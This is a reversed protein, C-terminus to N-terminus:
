CVGGSTHMKHICTLHSGAYSLPRLCAPLAPTPGYECWMIDEGGGGGGYQRKLM